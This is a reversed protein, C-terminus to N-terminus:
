RKRSLREILDWGWMWVHSWAILIFPGLLLPVLVFMAWEANSVNDISGEGLRLTAALIAFTVLLLRWSLYFYEKWFGPERMDQWISQRSLETAVERLSKPDQKRFSQAM